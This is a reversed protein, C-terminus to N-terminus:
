SETTSSSATPTTRSVPTASTAPGAAYLHGGSLAASGGLKDGAELLAVSAGEECAAIAGTMGAAGGGVVIVDFDVSTPM